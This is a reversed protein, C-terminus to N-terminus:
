RGRVLNRLAGVLAAGVFFYGGVRLIGVLVLGAGVAVDYPAFSMLVLTVVATALLFLGWRTWGRAVRPLTGVSRVGRPLHRLFARVLAAVGLAILVGSVARLWWPATAGLEIGVVLAGVLVAWLLRRSFRVLVVDLAEHLAEEQPDQGLASTVREASRRLRGRRAHLGALNAQATRHQPDLRLAEEFAARAQDPKNFANFCIGVLNHADPSHPALGVTHLAVDLADRVRPRRGTLLARALVYHSVWAQPALRVAEHAAEVAGAADERAVRVETLVLYARHLEPELRVASLAAQEAEPHRDQDRLADALLLLGSADEPEAALHGRLVEEAAAARRLDLLDQARRHVEYRNV